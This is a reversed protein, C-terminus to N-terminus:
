WFPREERRRGGREDGGTGERLLLSPGEFGALLVYFSFHLLRFYSFYSFTFFVFFVVLVVLGLHCMATVYFGILM